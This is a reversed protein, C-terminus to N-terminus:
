PLEYVELLAIGSTGNAGSILATYNGPELSILVAADKSGRPLAFAGVQAAAALLEASNGASEWDNNAGVTAGAATTLTLVPDALAASVGFATLAPGIGRVLFQRSRTGQVSLGGIAV